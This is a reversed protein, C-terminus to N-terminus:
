KRLLCGIVTFYNGLRFPQEANEKYLISPSQPFLSLQVGLAGAYPACLALDDQGIGHFYVNELFVDGKESKYFQNITSINGMIESAYESTGEESNLYIRNSFLFQGDAFLCSLIKGNEIFSLVFRNKKLDPFLEVAKLICNLRMDCSLLQVGANKFVTKYAELMPKGMACCLIKGKKESGIHRELVTYDFIQEEYQSDLNDFERQVADYIEAPKLLPIDTVIYLIDSSDIAIRVKSGISGKKRLEALSERVTDEDTIIGNILSGEPLTVTEYHTLNVRSGKATGCVLKIMNDTFIIATDM